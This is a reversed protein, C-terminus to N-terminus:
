EDHVLNEFPYLVEMGLPCLYEALKKEPLETAIMVFDGGWAGLSKVSGDLGPFRTVVPEMGLLAAMADEHEEMVRRFDALDSALLLEETLRSFYRVESEAPQLKVGHSVLSEASSQKNGLWAFFISDAFPPSFDVREIETKRSSAQERQEVRYQIPGSARACAVDYGSGGSVSFHLELPDIDAWRALLDILTSSSGFGFEPNFDLATEVRTHALQKGFSPKLKLCARLLHVLREAMLGNNSSRIELNDPDLSAQFWPAGGALASWKLLGSQRNSGLSMSQGKVLPLALATAGHLVMYEATLLLKGHARETNM